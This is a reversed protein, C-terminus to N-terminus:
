GRAHRASEKIAPAPAPASTLRLTVRGRCRRSAAICTSIAPRSGSGLNSRVPRCIGRGRSRFVSSRQRQRIPCSSHLGVISLGTKADFRRSPIHHQFRGFLTPRNRPSRGLHHNIWGSRGQTLSNEGIIKCIASRRLARNNQRRNGHTTDKGIYPVQPQAHRTQDGPVGSIKHRIEHVTWIKHQIAFLSTQCSGGDRGKGQQKLDQDRDM